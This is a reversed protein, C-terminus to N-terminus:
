INQVSNYYLQWSVRKTVKGTTASDQETLQFVGTYQEMWWKANCHSICGALPAESTEVQEDFAALADPYKWNKIVAVSIPKEQKKWTSSTSVWTNNRYDWLTMIKSNSCMEWWRFISFWLHSHSYQTWIIASFTMLLDSDNLLNKPNQLSNSLFM